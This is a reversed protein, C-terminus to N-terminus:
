LCLCVKFFLSSKVRLGRCCSWATAELVMGCRSSVTPHPKRTSHPFKGIASHLEVIDIRYSASVLAMVQLPLSCRSVLLKRREVGSQSAMLSLMASVRNVSELGGAHM